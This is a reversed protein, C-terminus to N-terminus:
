KTIRTATFTGIEARLKFPSEDEDVSTLFVLKGSISNSSSFKGKFTLTGVERCCTGLPLELDGSFSVRNDPLISSVAPVAGAPKDDPATDLPFFTAERNNKSVLILNKEQGRMIFKVRWRGRLNMPKPHQPGQASAREAITLPFSLLAAVLWVICIRKM